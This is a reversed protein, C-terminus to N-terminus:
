SCRGSKYPSKSWLHKSSNWDGPGRDRLILMALEVNQVADEKDRVEGWYKMSQTKWTSDIFQYVGGASSNPNQAFSHFGSEVCAIDLALFVDVDYKTALEIILKEIDSTDAKAIVKKTSQKPTSKQKAIVPAQVDIAVQPQVHEEVLVVPQAEHQTTQAIM